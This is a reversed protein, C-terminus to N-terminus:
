SAKTKIWNDIEEGIQDRWNNVSGKFETFLLGCELDSLENQKEIEIFKGSIYNKEGPYFLAAKEAKFYHHYVYMQRIDDMSPKSDVLKWKTDLIYNKDDKTIHIDPKIKRRNGQNAKWFFKSIQGRVKLEKKRKLSILVFQEWLLNMDFMLALVNNRGKSLDPHYNLLILRAIELATKYDQTKRNLKIHNFTEESIKQYPMEPFNLLLNNLRGLILSSTNIKKIVNLAQFLIIHLIHETDYVSHETYFREKHILNQGIQQSFLLRGKLVTTNEQTRRYKKVLGQRILNETQTIFLEFYLDLISNRNIKLNSSSPAKIDFGHVVRLLDILNKRWTNKSEASDKRKDAKPLVEILVHGIQIVGVFEKFRIGKHTLDYYPLGQGYFKEMEDLMSQEFKVGNEFDQNLHISQHEFVTIQKIKNAM